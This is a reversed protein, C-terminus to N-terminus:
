AVVAAWKVGGRWVRDGADPRSGGEGDAGGRAGRGARVLTQVHLLLQTYASYITTTGGCQFADPAWWVRVAACRDVAM